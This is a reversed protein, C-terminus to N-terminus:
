SRVAKTEDGILQLRRGGATLVFANGLEDWSVALYNHKATRLERCKLENALKVDRINCGGVDAVFDRIMISQRSTIQM